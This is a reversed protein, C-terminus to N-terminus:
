CTQACTTVAFFFLLATKVWKLLRAEREGTEAAEKRIRELDSAATAQLRAVERELRSEDQL